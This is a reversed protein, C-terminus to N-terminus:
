FEGDDIAASKLKLLQKVNVEFKRLRIDGQKKDVSLINLSSSSLWESANLRDMYSSVRANSESKGILRIQTGKQELRTLYLGRPLSKVMEDFLHVIGPRTAQLKDIIAIRDLLAKRTADLKKIEAITKDLKKTEMVLRENRSEQYSINGLMWSYWSFSALVGFALSAIVAMMFQKRSKERAADRWPLLNLGAM